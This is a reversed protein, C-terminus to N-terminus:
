TTISAQRAPPRTQRDAQRNPQRHRDERDQRDTQMDERDQIDTKSDSMDKQRYTHRQRGDLYKRYIVFMIWEREM